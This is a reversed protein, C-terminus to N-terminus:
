LKEEYGYEDLLCVDHGYHEILFEVIDGSINAEGVTIEVVGQHLAPLESLVRMLDSVQPWVKIIARLKDQGRNYLHSASAGCGKCRYGIMTSM